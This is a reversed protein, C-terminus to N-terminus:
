SLFEKVYAKIKDETDQSRNPGMGHPRQLEQATNPHTVFDRITKLQTERIKSKRWPTLPVEDLQIDLCANYKSENVMQHGCNYCYRQSEKLRPTSCNRCPPLNLHVKSMNEHGVLNGLTSREPHKVDKRSLFAVIETANFGRSKNSFAKEKLLFAMHPQYRDYARDPGHSVSSKPFLLGAEVLFQVMRSRLQDTDSSEQQISSLLQKESTDALEQNKKKIQELIAHFLAEGALLLDAYQPLKLKLSSYERLLHDTHQEIARNFKLQANGTTDSYGRVLNLFARPIGFAAVRLLVLVDPPIDATLTQLRNSAMQQLISDPQEWDVAWVDEKQADQGVHFRPGYETTGPYVAAKVSLTRSKLNRVVDFFEVLYDPTLTLAADDLFLITNPANLLTECYRLVRNLGSISVDRLIREAVEDGRVAGKEALDIFTQFMAQMDEALWPDVNADREPHRIEVERKVEILIKCLVWAHFVRDANASNTLLPELAYYGGFSAYVSFIGKKRCKLHSYRFLHTKGCGRPGVFLLTGRACAREVLASFRDTSATWTELEQDALYDAREELIESSFM